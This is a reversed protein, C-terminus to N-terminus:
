HVYILICASSLACSGNEGWFSYLSHHSTNPSPPLSLLAQPSVNITFLILHSIPVFSLKASIVNVLLWRAVQRRRDILATFCELVGRTPNKDAEEPKHLGGKEGYNMGTNNKYNQKRKTKTSFKVKLIKSSM